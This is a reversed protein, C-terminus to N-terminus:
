GRGLYIAELKRQAVRLLMAAEAALASQKAWDGVQEDLAAMVLARIDARAEDLKLGLAARQEHATSM